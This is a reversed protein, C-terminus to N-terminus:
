RSLYEEAQRAFGKAIEEVLPFIAPQGYHIVSVPKLNWKESPNVNLTSPYSPYLQQRKEVFEREAPDPINDARLQGAELEKVQQRTVSTKSLDAQGRTEFQRVIRGEGRVYIAWAADIGMDMTGSASRSAGPEKQSRFQFDCVCGTLLLLTDADYNECLLNWLKRRDTESTNKEKIDWGETLVKLADPPPVTVSYGRDSLIKGTTEVIKDATERNRIGSRRVQRRKSRYILEEFTPYVYFPPWNLNTHAINFRYITLEDMFQSLDDPANCENLLVIQANATTAGVALALWLFKMTKMPRSKLPIM